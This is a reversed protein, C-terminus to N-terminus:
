GRKGKNKKQLGKKIKRAGQKIQLREYSREMSMRRNFLRDVLSTKKKKKKAM